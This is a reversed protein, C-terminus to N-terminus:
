RELVYIDYTNGSSRIAVFYSRLESVGFEQKHYDWAKQRSDIMKSKVISAVHSIPGFGNSMM